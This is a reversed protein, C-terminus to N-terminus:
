VQASSTIRSTTGTLIEELRDITSGFHDDRFKIDSTEVSAAGRKESEGPKGNSIKNAKTQKKSKGGDANDAGANPENDRAQSVPVSVHTDIEQIQASTQVPAKTKDNLNKILKAGGRVDAAHTTEEAPTHSVLVPSLCETEHAESIQVPVHSETVHAHSSSSELTATVKNDANKKSKDKGKKGAAVPEPKHAPSVPASSKELPTEVEVRPEIQEIENNDSAQVPTQFKNDANKKSKEGGKTSASQTEKELAHSVLVPFKEAQTETEQVPAHLETKDTVKGSADSQNGAIKKSKNGGKKNATHQEKQTEKELAPSFPVPSKEAQMDAEQVPAHTEAEQVPARLETEQVHAHLETEQVHTHLETEGAVSSKVPVNSQNDANKKSKNGGKKNATHTEKQPTHSVGVLANAEKEDLTGFSKVPTSLKEDTNATSKGSETFVNAPVEDNQRPVITKYSDSSQVPMSLKEEAKGQLKGIDQVSVAHVEDYQHTHAAQVKANYKDDVNKSKKGGKANKGPTQKTGSDPSQLPSNSEKIINKKAQDEGKLNTALAHEQHTGLAQMTANLKEEAAAESIAGNKKIDTIPAHKEQLTSSTTAEVM